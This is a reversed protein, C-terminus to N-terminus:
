CGTVIFSRLATTGTAPPAIVLVGTQGATFTQNGANIVVTQTGTNTLRILQSGPTVNILGSTVGFGIGTASATGLAAGPASVFVDFAGSGAALNVVRLGAQGAAPAISTIVPAYLTVGSFGPYAVIVYNNGATLTPHFTASLSNTTGALRIDVDPQLASVLTCAGSAGFAIGGNGTAVTGATAIDLSSNTADAFRVTANGGLGTSDDDGCAALTGLSLLSLTVLLRHQMIASRRLVDVTMLVRAPSDRARDGRTAASVFPSRAIVSGADCARLFDRV